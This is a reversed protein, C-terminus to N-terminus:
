RGPAEGTNALRTPHRRYYWERGLGVGRRRVKEDRLGDRDRESFVPSDILQHSHPHLRRTNVQKKTPRDPLITMPGFYVRGVRCSTTFLGIM